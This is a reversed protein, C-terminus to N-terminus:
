SQERDENHRQRMARDHVSAPDQGLTPSGLEMALACRDLKEALDRYQCNKETGFNFESAYYYAANAAKRLDEATLSAPSGPPPSHTGGPDKDAAEVPSVGPVASSELFRRVAAVEDANLPAILPQPQCAGKLKSADLFGGLGCDGDYTPGCHSDDHESLEQGCHCWDGPTWAVLNCASCAPEGPVCECRSAGQAELCEVGAEYEALREAAEDPTLTAGAAISERRLHPSGPGHKVPFSSGAERACRENKPSEEDQGPTFAVLQKAADVVESAVWWLGRAASFLSM